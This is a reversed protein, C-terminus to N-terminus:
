KGLYQVQFLFNGGERSRLRDMQRATDVISRDLCLSKLSQSAPQPIWFSSLKTWCQEKKPAISRCSFRIRRHTRKTVTRTAEEAQVTAVESISDRTAWAPGHRLKIRSDIQHRAPTPSTAAGPGLPVGRRGGAAPLGLAGATRILGGCWRDERRRRESDPQAM